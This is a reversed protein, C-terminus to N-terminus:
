NMEKANDFYTASYAEAVIDIIRESGDPIFKNAYAVIKTHNTMGFAGFGQEIIDDCYGLYELYQICCDIFNRAYILNFHGVSQTSGINVGSLVLYKNIDSKRTM